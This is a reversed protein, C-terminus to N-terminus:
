NKDRLNDFDIHIVGCNACKIIGPDGADYEFYSITMNDSKYMDIDFLNGRTGPYIFTVKKKKM